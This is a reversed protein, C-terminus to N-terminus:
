CGGGGGAAGEFGADVVGAAGVGVCLSTGRLDVRQDRLSRFPIDHKFFYDLARLYELQFSLNNREGVWKWLLWTYPMSVNFQCSLERGEERQEQNM